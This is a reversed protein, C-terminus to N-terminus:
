LSHFGKGGRHFTRHRGATRPRRDDTRVNACLRHPCDQGDTPKESGLSLAHRGFTHLPKPIVVHIFCSGLAHRTIRMKWRCAKPSRHLFVTESSEWLKKGSAM